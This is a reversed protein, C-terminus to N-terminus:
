QDHDDRCTRSLDREAFDRNPENKQNANRFPRPRVVQFQDREEGPMHTSFVHDVPKDLCLVHRTEKGSESFAGLWASHVVGPLGLLLARKGRQQATQEPQLEPENFVETQAFALQRQDPRCQDANQPRKGRLAKALRALKKM